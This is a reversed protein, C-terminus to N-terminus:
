RGEYARSMRINMRGYQEEFDDEAACYRRLGDVRAQVKHDMQALDNQTQSGFYKTYQYQANQRQHLLIFVSALFLISLVIHPRRLPPITMYMVLVHPKLIYLTLILSVSFRKQNRDQKTGGESRLRVEGM